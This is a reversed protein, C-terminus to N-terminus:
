KIIRRKKRNNNIIKEKIDTSGEAADTIKKPTVFVLFQTKKTRFAKSRLLNFIAGGGQGQAPAAEPDRDIDKATEHSILGGIVASEGSKVLITNRVQTKAVATPGGAGAGRFASFNVFTNLEILEEGAMSPTVKVNIQASANAAVPSGNAIQAIYPIFDERLIETEVSEKTFQVTSFLIRAFGGNAGSQIKPLLNGITGVFSGNSTAGTGGTTAKGITLGSNEALTPAWKFFSSKLFDKGIEVFHYTLRFMRPPPDAPKSEINILNKLAFKKAAPIIYGEKITPSSQIEPILTQAVQEARERDTTSDVNGLLFFTDNIIKVQVNIGGPQDNIEKQMRQALAERSIKSLTILNLVEPFAQQVQYIRDWDRPVILEGDIVIKDEVLEITIGEIDFLLRRLATVKPSLDAVSVNYNYKKHLVGKDDEIVLQATGKKLPFVKLQKLTSGVEVKIVGNSPITYRPQFDFDLSDVAGVPLSKVEEKSAPEEEKEDKGDGLDDLGDLSFADHHLVLASFFLASLYFRRLRM